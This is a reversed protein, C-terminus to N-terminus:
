LNITMGILTSFDVHLLDLHPDSDFRMASEIELSINERVPLAIALEGLLRYDVINLIDPQLYVTGNIVVDNINKNLNINFNGRYLNMLGETYVENEFFLGGASKVALGGKTTASRSLNFGMLNREKVLLASNFQGQIFIQLGITKSLKSHHRLNVFGTQYILNQQESAFNYGFILWAQQNRTLKKGLGIGSNLATFVGNGSSITGQLEINAEWISDIPSMLDYTNVITQGQLGTQAVLLISTFLLWPKLKNM